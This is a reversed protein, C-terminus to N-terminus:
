CRASSFMRLIRRKPAIMLVRIYRNVKSLRNNQIISQGNNATLLSTRVSFTHEATQCNALLRINKLKIFIILELLMIGHGACSGTIM